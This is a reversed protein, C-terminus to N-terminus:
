KPKKDKCQGKGKGKGKNCTFDGLNLGSDKAAGPMSGVVDSEVSSWIGILSDAMTTLAALSGIGILVAILGYEISAAARNDAALRRAQRLLKIFM